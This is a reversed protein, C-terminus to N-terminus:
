GECATTLWASWAAEAEPYSMGFADSFSREGFCFACVNETGCNDALWAILSAAEAPSLENGGISKSPGSYYAFSSVPASEFPTGWGMGDRLCVYAVAHTLLLYDEPMNDLSGGLREFADLYPESQMAEADYSGTMESHPNLCFGLYIAFGLQQWEVHEADMLALTYVLDRHWYYDGVWVTVRDDRLNYAYSGYRHIELEVFKSATEEPYCDPANEQLWSRLFHLSKETRDIFGPLFEQPSKGTRSEIQLAHLDAAIHFEDDQVDLNWADNVEEPLTLEDYGGTGSVTLTGSTADYRAVADDPGTKAPRTKFWVFTGIGLALVAAVAGFLLRKKSRRVKKLYDIETTETPEEAEDQKMERYLARCDECGALHAEIAENSQEGTLKEAYSPLLDRVIECSLNTKM